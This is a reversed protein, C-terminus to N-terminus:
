RPKGATKENRDNLRHYRRALSQPRFGLAHGLALWRNHVTRRIWGDREWRRPSVRLPLALARFTGRRRLARVLRVEEFLPDHSFGGASAYVERLVFLGQDGYAIGGLRIRLAILRELVLKVARGPGGFRFQFCGSEAGRRIASEIADMAAPDPQADAHLFWLIEGTAHRAGIDLQAGRNRPAELLEAGHQTALQILDAPRGPEPNSGFPASDEIGPSEGTRTNVDNDANREAGASVIVIQAPRRPWGTVADLLNGLAETDNLVPIVLSVSPTDAPHRSLPVATM